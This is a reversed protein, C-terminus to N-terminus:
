PAETLNLAHTPSRFFYVRNFDSLIPRTIEADAFETASTPLLLSPREKPLLIPPVDGSVIVLWYEDCSRYGNLAAHKKELIRNLDVETFHELITGRSATVASFNQGDNYFSINKLFKPLEPCVHANTHRTLKDEIRVLMAGSQPEMSRTLAEIQGVIASLAVNAKKPEVAIENNFALNVIIPLAPRMSKELAKAFDNQAAEIEHASFKAAYIPRQAVTIEVGVIKNGIRLRFDPSEEAALGGKDTMIEDFEIKESQTFWHLTELEGLKRPPIKTLQELIKM